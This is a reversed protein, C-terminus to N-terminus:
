EGLQRLAPGFALDIDDPPGLRLAEHAPIGLSGLAALDLGPGIMEAATRLGALQVSATLLGRTLALTSVGLPAGVRGIASSANM